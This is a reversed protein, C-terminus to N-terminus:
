RVGKKGTRTGEYKRKNKRKGMRLRGEKGYGIKKQEELAGHEMEIEKNSEKTRQVRRRRKGRM